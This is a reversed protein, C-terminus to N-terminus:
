TQHARKKTEQSPEKDFIDIESKIGLLKNEKNEIMKSQEENKNENYKTKKMWDKISFRVWHLINLNLKKM